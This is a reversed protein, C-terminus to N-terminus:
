PEGIMIIRPTFNPIYGYPFIPPTFNTTWRAIGKSVRFEELWGNFYHLLTGFRGISFLGGDNNLAGTIAPRVSYLNGNLYTRLNGYSTGNRVIAVHQWSENSIYGCRIFGERDDSEHTQFSMLGETCDLYFSHDGFLDVGKGFIYEGRSTWNTTASRIWFDITFDADFYFDAHDPTTIYDTDNAFRASSTWKFQDTKILPGGNRTWVKGSEDTFVTSNNAGDM